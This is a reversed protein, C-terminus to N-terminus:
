IPVVRWCDACPNKCAGCRGGESISEAVNRVITLCVNQGNQSRCWFLRHTVTTSCKCGIHASECRLNDDWHEELYDQRSDIDTSLPASLTTTTSMVSHPQNYTNTAESIPGGM